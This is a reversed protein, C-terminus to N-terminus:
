VFVSYCLWSGNPNTITLTKKDKSVSFNIGAITFNLIDAIDVAAHFYRSGNGVGGPDTFYWEGTVNIVYRVRYSSNNLGFTIYKVTETFTHTKPETSTYPYDEGTSAAAENNTLKESKQSGGGNQGHLYCESM